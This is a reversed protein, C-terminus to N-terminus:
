LHSVFKLCSCPNKGGSSVSKFRKIYYLGDAPVLALSPYRAAYRRCSTGQFKLLDQALCENYYRTITPSQGLPLAVPEPGAIPPEFGEDGALKYVLPSRLPRTFVAVIAGTSPDRLIM